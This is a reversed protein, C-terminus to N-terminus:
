FFHNMIAECQAETLSYNKGAIDSGGMLNRTTNNELHGLDGMIHVIEHALTSYTADAMPVNTHVSNEESIWFTGLLPRYSPFQTTRESRIVSSLNIAFASGYPKIKQFLFGLLKREPIGELGIPVEPMGLYPNNVLVQDKFKQPLTVQIFEVKNIGIGCDGLSRQTKELERNMIQDDAWKSELDLIITLEIQRDAQSTYTKELTGIYNFYSNRIIEENASASSIFSTFFLSLLIKNKM